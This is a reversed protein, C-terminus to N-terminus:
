DGHGVEPHLSGPAPLTLVYYNDREAGAGTSVFGTAAYGRAFYSEFIERTQLRWDLALAMDAAKAAQLDAPMDVRLAPATADCRYRALRRRIGEGAIDTVAEAPPPQITGALAASVRPSDLLWEVVFRDTPLGQNLQGFREGYINRRYRRVLGGLKAINLRANPMELPDYTWTILRLGQALAWERQRWKLREALRAQRYEPLVGMSQSYLKLQGDWHRALFSVLFGVMAGTDTDFAGLVLGGNDAFALLSPPYFGTADDFNWIARQVRPVDQMEDFTKLERIDVNM